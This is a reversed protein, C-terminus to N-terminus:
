GAVMSFTMAGSGRNKSARCTPICANKVSGLFSQPHATTCPQRRARLRYLKQLIDPFLFLGMFFVRVAVRTAARAAGAKAPPGTIMSSVSTTASRGAEPKRSGSRATTAMPSRTADPSSSGSAGGQTLQQFRPATRARDRPGSVTQGHWVIRVPIRKEQLADKRGESHLGPPLVLWPANEDGAVLAAPLGCCQLTQQRFESRLLRLADYRVGQKSLEIDQVAGARVCRLREVGVAADVAGRMALAKGVMGDGFARVDQPFARDGPVDLANRNGEAAKAVPDFAKGKRGRNRFAPKGGQVSAEGRRGRAVASGQMDTPRDKDFSCQSPRNEEVTGFTGQQEVPNRDKVVIALRREVVMDDSRGVLPEPRIGGEGEFGQQNFTGTRARFSGERRKKGVPVLKSRLDCGSLM